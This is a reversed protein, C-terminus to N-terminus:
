DNRSRSAASSLEASRVKSSKCRVRNVFSNKADVFTTSTGSNSGKVKAVTKQIPQSITYKLKSSTSVSPKSLKANLPKIKTFLPTAMAVPEKHNAMKGAAEPAAKLGLQYSSLPPLGNTSFAATSTTVATAVVGASGGFSRAIDMPKARLVVAEPEVFNCADALTKTAMLPQVGNVTAGMPISTTPHIDYSAAAAVTASLQAGPCPEPLPEEPSNYWCNGSTEFPDESACCADVTNTQKLLTKDNCLASILPLDLNKSKERLSSIDLSVNAQPDGDSGTECLDGISGLQDRSRSCLEFISAANSGINHSPPKIREPLCVLSKQFLSM